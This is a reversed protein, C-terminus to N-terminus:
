AELEKEGTVLQIDMVKQFERAQWGAGDHRTHLM